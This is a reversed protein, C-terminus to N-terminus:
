TAPRLAVRRLTGIVRSRLEEPASVYVFLTVGFVVAAGVAAGVVSHPDWVRTLAASSIVILAPPLLAAYTRWPLRSLAFMLGTDIVSRLTVAWAGGYVGWLHLFLAVVAVSPVLEALHLRAVIDVRRKGSLRAYPIYSMGNVWAGALIAQGAPASANALSPGLWHLLFFKMGVIGLVVLPTMVTSMALLARRALEDTEDGRLKSFRPFTASLVAGPIVLIRSALNFPVTYYTVAATGSIAVIVLRDLSGVVQIAVNSVTAWGGFSFLPRLWRREFRPAGLPVFRWAVFALPITGAIRSLIAAPILLRLDPGFAFAVLLPVVLFATMGVFSCTSLAFFLERGAVSGGIVSSIVAVLVSGALWPLAATVEPLLEPPMKAHPFFVSGAAFVLAGGILGLGGNITLATWFLSSRHAPRRLKAVLATTAQGLGLDFLGFYGIFIWVIALIGYRDAGIRHLYLPTVVFAVALQAFSGGVNIITNRGVSSKM